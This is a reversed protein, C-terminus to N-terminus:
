RMFQIYWDILNPDLSVSSNNTVMTNPVQVQNFFYKINKVKYKYKCIHFFAQVQSSYKWFYKVWGQECPLASM